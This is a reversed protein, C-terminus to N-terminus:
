PVSVPQQELLPTFQDKSKLKKSHTSLKKLKTSLSDAALRRWFLSPPVSVHERHPFIWQPQSFCTNVCVHLPSTKYPAFDGNQMVYLNLWTSQMWWGQVCCVMSGDCLGLHHKRQFLGEAKMLAIILRLSLHPNSVLGCCFSEAKM